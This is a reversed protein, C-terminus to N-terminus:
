PLLGRYEFKNHPLPIDRFRGAMTKNVPFNRKFFSLDCDKCLSPLNSALSTALWPGTSCLHLGTVRNWTLYM